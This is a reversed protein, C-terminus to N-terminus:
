IRYWKNIKNTLADTALTVHVVSEEVVVLELCFLFVVHLFVVVGVVGESLGRRLALLLLGVAM